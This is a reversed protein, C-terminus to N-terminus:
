KQSKIFASHEEPTNCNMLANANLLDLNQVNSNILVKRPCRINYSLYRFLVAKCHPEYITCLPEPLHQDASLYTTAVKLPNRNEILYEITKEDVMPLDCAVVLWACESDMDMASLIGGMPGKALYSDELRPYPYNQESRCSIFTEDCYPDLLEYIIEAQAKGHYNLYSKDRQMRTSKGGALVLGKVPVSSVLSKFYNEIFESIAGMQDRQFHPVNFQGEGTVPGITALINQIKNSEIETKIENAEDLVVIKPMKSYKWGEAIVIDSRSFVESQFVEGDGYAAFGNKDNILVSNAGAKKIRFTDKGEHDVNVNHADNKLFGIKYNASLKSVLKEILTTKGSNSFGCIALVFPHQIIQKKKSV